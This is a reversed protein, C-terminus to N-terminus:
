CCPSKLLVQFTSLFNVSATTWLHETFFTNKSIECFECSFVQAPIEKKIFNCGEPRSIELFVQHSSRSESYKRGAMRTFLCNLKLACLVNLRRKNLVNTEVLLVGFTKKHYSSIDVCFM